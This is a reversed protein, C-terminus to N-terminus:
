HIIKKYYRAIEVTQPNLSSLKKTVQHFDFRHIQENRVGVMVGYHNEMISQSVVAGIKSAILADKFSPRGARIYFGMISKRVRIGTEREISTAIDLSVGQNGSQYNKDEYASESCMIILSNKQKLKEKVINTIDSKKTSYEPIIALDSAGALASELALNGSNGGLVEVMFIRGPMNASTDHLGYLVEIMKNLATDFGVSYDSGNVDNDVTMPVFITNTGEIQLLQAAKQSGNGGCVVLCDFNDLALKRRLQDRGEKTYPIKSRGTKVLHIGDLARNECYKETLHIPDSSLIGNYGGHFGFLDIQPNKAMIEITSNIGAGDGGSTILAVQKM